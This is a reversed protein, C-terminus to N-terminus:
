RLWLEPNQPKTGQWIQFHLQTMDDITDIRGIVDGTSVKDGAKVSVNGLRCYFSFYNGHQVLVCKGYGPMVVIQKVIGNFVSKIETDKALAINIGNNFPLKVKTFVPHYHQGFHDVVPGDAPWPLRGKNKSFESDLKMDVPQKIKGTGKGRMSAALIREIERNLAEVQKKKAALDKQYKSRNRKLQAVYTQSQLEEKRLLEVDAARKARLAQAQNRMVALSDMEDQLVARTEKIKEGQRNMETSLNKLYGARRFAQGLNESALIYMYWVKSDRNRYASKVLKGYYVSLTDLRGQLRDVEKQKEGIKGRLVAIERDSDEVLAKRAEIKQRTLTLATMANKSQMANDKLQKDIAAIEKELRSKKSQQARTDQAFSVFANVQFMLLLAFIRSVVANIRVRKM